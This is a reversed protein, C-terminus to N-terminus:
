RFVNAQFVLLPRMDKSPLFNVRDYEFAERPPIPQDFKPISNIPNARGTRVM